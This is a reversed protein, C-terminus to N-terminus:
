GQIRSNRNEAQSYIRAGLPMQLLAARARAVLAENTAPLPDIPEELLATLHEAFRRRLDANEAGPFRANWDIGMWVKLFAPELHEPMPFMLYAKLAQYLYEPDGLHGAVQEELRAMLIPVFLRDLARHYALHEAEGLKDGQFLGATVSLPPSRDGEAYGYPLARLADLLAIVDTAGGRGALATAHDRQLAEVRAEVDAILARNGLYSVTWAGLMLLIAAAAGGYAAWQFYPRYRSIVGTGAVLGAEKFIMDQLLRKLFYSLGRGSFAPVAERRLQFRAAIAAIVRDTPTGLQTASTLYVGRVLLPEEFRTQGVLEALFEELAPKLVKMQQPFSLLLSRRAVDREEELRTVIRTALREFLQDLDNQFTAPLDNPNQSEKLTVTAGWVQSREEQALDGFFETFGAVLDCKTFLVYVPARVKLTAYLEHIRAKVARAHVLRENPAGATIETLSFAVLIGDIPRRPRHKRLLDLFSLWASRDVPEDSDQTTYRGATDILVADDSFFWDCNRTGSVGRLARDGFKHRLPFSLGSNYLATTKGAGPPGIIVYWPLQYLYRRRGPRGLRAERLIALAERFGSSLADSEERAAIAKPDEPIPAPAEASLSTVVDRNARRQRSLVIINVAAWILVIVLIAVLRSVEGALPTHGAFALDAGFFWVLLALILLAAVSLVWRNLM